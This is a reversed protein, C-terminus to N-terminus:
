GHSETDIPDDDDGVAALILGAAFIETLRRQIDDDDLVERVLAVADDKGLGGDIGLAAAGAGKGVKLLLRKIGAM